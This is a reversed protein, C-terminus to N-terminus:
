KWRGSTHSTLLKAVHWFKGWFNAVVNEWNGLQTPMRTVNGNLSINDIIRVDRVHMTLHFYYFVPESFALDTIFPMQLYNPYKPNEGTATKDHAQLQCSSCSLHSSYCIRHRRKELFRGVKNEQDHLYTCFCSVTSLQFMHTNKLCLLSKHGSTVM